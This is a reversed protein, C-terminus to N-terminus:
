VSIIQAIILVAPLVLGLIIEGELMGIERRHSSHACGLRFALSGGSTQSLDGQEGWAGSVM